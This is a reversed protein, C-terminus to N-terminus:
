QELSHLLFEGRASVNALLALGDAYNADTMTEAPYPRSKVKKKM